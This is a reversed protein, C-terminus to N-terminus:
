EEEYVPKEVVGVIEVEYYKICPKMFRHVRRGNAKLDEATEYVPTVQVKYGNNTLIPMLEMLDRAEEIKMVKFNNNM